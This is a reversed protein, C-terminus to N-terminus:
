EQKFNFLIGMRLLGNKLITKGDLITFVMKFFLFLQM